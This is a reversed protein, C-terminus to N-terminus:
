QASFEDGKEPSLDMNDLKQKLEDKVTNYHQLLEEKVPHTSPFEQVLYNVPSGNIYFRFDLHPGTSLGSSGVYGITEGQLVNKGTKIGSAFKSLHMYMSSYTGNHKIKVYRGEAKKYGASTVIGDGVAQVPTGIPAAYDIGYHARYKKLVPHFRRGTFRSSIRSFRVPAKLFAKSLSMGNEDFYDDTSDQNFEFAYYDKGNHVFSAAFIRGIGVMEDGIYQEEYIAKFEDGNQVTYFDIQWAFIESLAIALVPNANHKMFTEWLSNEVVGAVERDRLEIERKGAYVNISDSLDVVVYNVRDPQYVFYKVHEVSDVASYVTYQKGANIKRASFLDKMEAAINIIDQITLNHPLLIDTLTENRKVIDQYETLSDVALNFDNYNVALTDTTPQQENEAISNDIIKYVIIAVLILVIPYYIKLLKKM